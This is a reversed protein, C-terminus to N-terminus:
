PSNINDASQKPASKADFGAEDLQNEPLRQWAYDESFDGGMAAEAIFKAVRRENYQAHARQWAARAIKRRLADDKLFKQALAGLEETDNFYAAEDEGYIGDLGAIRPVLALVGNGTLHSLRDSIGLPWHTINDSRSLCPGMKSAALAHAYAAGGIFKGNVGYLGFRAQPAARQLVDM